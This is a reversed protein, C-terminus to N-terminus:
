PTPPFVNSESDVPATWGASGPSVLSSLRNANDYIYQLKNASNLSDDVNPDLGFALEDKTLIGDGDPDDNVLPDLGANLEALNGIGDGDFDALSPNGTAIDSYKLRFFSRTASSNFGWQIISTSGSEIIPIYNWTQLDDVSQQIFYTRNALGWWSLTFAETSGIRQLTLGENLDTATQAPAMGWLTLMLTLTVIWTKM